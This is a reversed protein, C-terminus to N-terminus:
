IWCVHMCLYRMYWAYPYKPQGAAEAAILACRHLEQATPDARTTHTAHYSPYVCM